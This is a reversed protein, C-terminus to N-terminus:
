LFLVNPFLRVLDVDFSFSNTGLLGQVLGMTKNYLLIDREGV